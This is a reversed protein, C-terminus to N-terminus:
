FIVLSVVGWWFGFGLAIAPILWWGSVMRREVKPRELSIRESKVTKSFDTEITMAGSM